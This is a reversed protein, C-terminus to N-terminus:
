GAAAEGSANVHAGRIRHTTLIRQDIRTLFGRRACLSTRDWASLLAAIQLEVTAEDSQPKAPIPDGAPELPKADNAAEAPESDNAAEIAAPEPATSDLGPDGNEPAPPPAALAQDGCGREEGSAPQRHFFRWLVNSM